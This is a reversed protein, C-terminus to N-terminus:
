PITDDFPDHVGHGRDYFLELPDWLHHEYDPRKKWELQNANEADMTLRVQDHEVNEIAVYPYYRHDHFIVRKRVVFSDEYAEETHGLYQHDFSYVRMHPHLDQQSWKPMM